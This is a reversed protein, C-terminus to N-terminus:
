STNVFKAVMAEHSNHSLFGLYSAATKDYRTTIRKANKLGNFYREVQNRLAYIFGGVGRKEKRNSRSPIVAQGGHGEVKQHITASDYGKDAILIKAPKQGTDYIQDYGKYESVEGGSVEARIPL